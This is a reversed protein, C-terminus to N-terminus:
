KSEEEFEIHKEVKKELFTHYCLKNCFFKTNRSVKSNHKYIQAGCYECTCFRGHIRKVKQEEHLIESQYKLFDNVRKEREEYFKRTQQM